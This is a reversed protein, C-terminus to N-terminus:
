QPCHRWGTLRAVRDLLATRDGTMMALHHSGGEGAYWTLFDEIKKAAPRLIGRPGDVASLSDSELTGGFSIIQGRGDPGVNLNVVTVPGPRFEFDTVLFEARHVDAFSSKRLIPKRRALNLNGEGWHRLVLRADEYGVSFIETFTTQADVALGGRVLMATVWDGEGGYGIGEAMLLGAAVHLGDAIDPDNCLSLFNIGAAKAGCGALVKRLGLELRATKDLLLDTVTEALEFATRYERIRGAVEDSPVGRGAALFEERSVPRGRVGFSRLFATEDMQIDLMQDFHGGVVIPHSSRMARVMRGAELWLRLETRFEPSLFHGHLIGHPRGKRRLLNALDQTGHVGHNMMMAESTYEEAVLRQLPQAPWLLLPLRSETVGPLIIGSECYAVHSLVLLDSGAEECRRCAARIENETCAMGECVVEVRTDDLSRVVDHLFGEYKDKVGPVLRNYLDIMVPVLGMKFRTDEATM